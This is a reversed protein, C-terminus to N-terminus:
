LRPVVQVVIFAAVIVMLAIIVIFETKYRKANPNDPDEMMKFRKTTVGGIGNLLSL